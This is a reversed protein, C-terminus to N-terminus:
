SQRPKMLRQGAGAVNGAALRELAARIEEPSCQLREAIGQTTPPSATRVFEQYLTLRVATDFETSEERHGM